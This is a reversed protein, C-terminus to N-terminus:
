DNIEEVRHCAVFHGKSVEKFEPMSEACKETAYQREIRTVLYNSDVEVKVSLIGEAKARLVALIRHSAARQIPESFDFYNRYKAVAEEEPDVGKALHALIRGQKLYHQRLDARVSALEAVQEALIDRAYALAADIETVEENLYASVERAPDKIQSKWLALALPEMGKEKATTARTKRKPRYPLYLDELVQADVCVDIAQALEPTLKDLGQITERISQKRKELEDFKQHWHKLEAIQAEDMGGTREKRYRSIFPVTAGEELLSVGQEVQWARVGLKECLFNVYITNM